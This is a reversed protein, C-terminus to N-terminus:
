GKIDVAVHLLSALRLILLGGEDPGAWRLSRVCLATCCCHCNVFALWRMALQMLSSLPM